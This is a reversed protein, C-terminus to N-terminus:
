ELEWSMEKTKKNVSIRKIVKMEDKDDLLEIVNRCTIGIQCIVGYVEPTRCLKMLKMLAFDRAKGEHEICLYETHALENYEDYMLMKIMPISGKGYMVENHVRGDINYIATETSLVLAKNGLEYKGHKIHHRGRPPHDNSCLESDYPNYTGCKDCKKEFEFGCKWCERDKIDCVTPRGDDDSCEPCIKFPKDGEKKALPKINDIAGHREINTGYDLVYGHEKDDHARLVRGMMQIYKAIVMTALFLVVMQLARYDFGRIYLGVNVLFRRGSGNELWKLNDDLERESLEGHSVRMTESENWQEAIAYANAVSSAFIVATDINYHDAKQRMDAAGAPLIEVFKVQVMEQNYEEHTDGKDNIKSKTTKVGSLDVHINGSINIVKSLYGKAILDPIDTEYCQNTFFPTGKKCEDWLFGQDDRYVSGTTGCVLMKPNIELLSSLIRRIRSNENPTTMDAEDITCVDFRGAKDRSSYFSQYMAVVARRHIQNKGLKNCCIGIDYPHNTWGMLEAHNQEVLKKSPVLQIIRKDPTDLVKECLMAHVLSKGSGTVMNAVPRM